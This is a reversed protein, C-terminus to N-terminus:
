HRKLKLNTTRAEVEDLIEDATMAWSSVGMLVVLILIILSLLKENFKM